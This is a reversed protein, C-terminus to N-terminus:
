AMAISKLREDRKAKIKRTILEFARDPLCLRRGELVLGLGLREVAVEGDLLAEKAFVVDRGEPVMVADLSIVGEREMLVLQEEQTIATSTWPKCCTTQSVSVHLAVSSVSYTVTVDKLPDFAVAILLVVVTRPSAAERLADAM